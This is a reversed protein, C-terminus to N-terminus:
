KILVMRKTESYDQATLKYFYVGSPYNAGDFDVEYTGARLQENVLVAVERGLIDYISIKVFGGSQTRGGKGFPPSLPTPIDFKIKTTPNFPNPYNQFLSFQAPVESSIPEIGIPEGGTTTKYIIGSSFSGGCIFWNNADIISSGNLVHISDPITHNTWNGGYNTTRSILLHSFFPGGNGIAMGKGSGNVFEIGYYVSNQNQFSLKTWNLGSNTTKYILSILSTDYTVAFGTTSNPFNVDNFMADGPFIQISWSNGGNSSKLIIGDPPNGGFRKWGAAFITNGDLTFLNHIDSTDIAYLTSWNLGGNTTKLIANKEGASYNLSATVFGTNLNIFRMGMLYYVNSPLNGYTFWNKGGNTTKLFLGKYEELSDTMGIREYYNQFRNHSNREYADKYHAANDNGFINYAGAIYGTNNDILQVKVLSRSSDPVQALFWNIGSNTTYIAKGFFPDGWGGAVGINVNAFDISLIMNLGTPVTQQVWQSFLFSPSLLLALIIKKM